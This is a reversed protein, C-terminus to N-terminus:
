NSDIINNKNIRSRTVKPETNQVEIHEQQKNNEIHIQLLFSLTDIDRSRGLYPYEYVYRLNNLDNSPINTTSYIIAPIFIKRCSLGNLM